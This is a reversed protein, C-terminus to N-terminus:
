QMRMLYDVSLFPARIDFRWLQYIGDAEKIGMMLILDEIKKRAEM